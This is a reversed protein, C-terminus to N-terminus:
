KPVTISFQMVCDFISIISFKISLTMFVVILVDNIKNTIAVAKETVEQLLLFFCSTATGVPSTNTFSYQVPGSNKESLFVNLAFATLSLMSWCVALFLDIISAFCFNADNM